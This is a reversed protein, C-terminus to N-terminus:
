KAQSRLRRVVKGIFLAPANRLIPAGPVEFPGCIEGHGIAKVRGHSLRTVFSNLDKRNHDHRVDRSRATVFEQILVLVRGINRREGECLAGAVATLLQYRLSGIEPEGTEMPGLLAQGLQLVRAIGKSRDTKLYRETAGVLTESVTESFPEDAKAEVAILYPGHQDRAIVLLDTNRPEGDFSDFPLRVEPEAAWGIVSGFASSGELAAVVEAPMRGSEATLWARAAEKASRGDVWQEPKKPGGLRQWDELTLLVAGNKSITM